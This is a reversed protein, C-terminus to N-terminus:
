LSFEGPVPQLCKTYHFEIQLRHHVIPSSAAVLGKKVDAQLERLPIAALFSKIYEKCSDKGEYVILEKDNSKRRIRTNQDFKLVYAQSCGEYLREGLTDIIFYADKEVKLIFFHDNWSVIYVLPEINNTHNLGTQSIEDWINDFSLAGNLFDFGGDELQFFGIFSKEPIVEFNRTKSELVTELDFHKDPFRKKYDENQCLNRWELSGQCILTDFESKIPLQGRNNQFWNAITAALSTCASEGCAKESRQDISAFFVQTALKMNGDRNTIEKDEWKGIIFNDDGFESVSSRSTTSGESRDWGHSSEDSSTLMRRDFDIDDGGEGVNRKLLPEGKVKPSRFSLKRKRWPLIGKKLIQSESWDSIMSEGLDDSKKIKNHNRFYIMDEQESGTSKSYSLGGAHNAYALSGYGFSKKIDSDSYDIEESDIGDSGDYSDTDFPYDSSDTMVSSKGVSGEEEHCAKKARNRSMIAKFIKVKRLGAKLGVPDDGNVSRQALETVNHANRLEVLSLSVSLIPCCETSNPMLLPINIPTKEQEVSAFESLNLSGTAVVHNWRKPGQNLGDFVKLAVEWQHFCGDRFGMLDCVAVFEENWEVVGNDNLPKGKTLNRKVSGRKFNLRNNSKVSGKWKVEVGLKSIDGPDGGSEGGDGGTGSSTAKEPLGQLRCVVITVHFKNSSLPPWPRWKMMKVVMTSHKFNPDLTQLPYIKQFPPTHNIYSSTTIM